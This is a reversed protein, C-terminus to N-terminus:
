VVSKRDQGVDRGRQARGQHEALVLAEVLVAAHVPGGHGGGGPAVEPVLARAAGAGDGHLDSSCVDSSWDRSCRTHRRRSSFFFVDLGNADLGLAHETWSEYNSNVLKRVFWGRM